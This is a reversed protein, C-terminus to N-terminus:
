PGKQPKVFEDQKQYKQTQKRLFSLWHTLLQGKEVLRLDRQMLCYEITLHQFGSSISIM